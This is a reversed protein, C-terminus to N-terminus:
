LADKAEAVQLDQRPDPTSTPAYPVSLVPTEANKVPLNGDDEGPVGVQGMLGAQCHEAFLQFPRAVTELPVSSHQCHSHQDDQM